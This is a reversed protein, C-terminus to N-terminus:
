HRSPRLLLSVVVGAVLGTGFAALVSEMPRGRVLQQAEDYGAELQHEVNQFQEQVRRSTNEAFQRASAKAQELTTYGNEISHNLFEEIEARSQGTKQQIVGILQEADGHAQQLEDESLQGWRERIQGKLETWHGELEKKTIM